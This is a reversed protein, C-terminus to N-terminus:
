TGKKLDEVADRNSDLSRKIESLDEKLSQELHSTQQIENDIKRTLERGSDKIAEAIDNNEIMPMLETAEDIIEQVDMTESVEYTQGFVDQYTGKVSINASATCVETFTVM